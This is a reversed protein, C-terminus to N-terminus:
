CSTLILLKRTREGMTTALLYYTDSEDSKLTQKLQQATLPFHRSMITLAPYRQRLAQLEKGRLASKNYDIEEILKYSKYLPSPSAKASTYIHSNPGLLTLSQEEAILHFAGSKMLLPQPIHIYEEVKTAYATRVSSLSHYPFSWRSVQGLRDVVALYIESDTEQRQMSVSVLLEKVEDQVQVIHVACVQPLQELIWQIDLMPSLKLLLRGQYDLKQLRSMIQLPSPSYEEMSILRRNPDEMDRRAPDAYILTIGELTAREMAALADGCHVTVHDQQLIKHLNYTLAEAMTPDIEYIISLESVSAMALADIGLGGTMDLIHEQPEILQQKYRATQESSSQEFNVRHPIYGGCEAFRPMKRQMKPLLAVQLAVQRKLEPELESREFLIRDPSRDAWQRSLAVVQEMQQQSLM